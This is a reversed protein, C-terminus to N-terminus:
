SLGRRERWGRRRAHGLSLPSASTRTATRSSSCSTATRSSCASSTPTARCTGGGSARSSPRRPRPASPRRCSPCSCPRTSSTSRPRRSTCSATCSRPRRRPSPRPTPLRLPLLPRRSTRPRNLVCCWSARTASAASFSTRSNPPGGCTRRDRVRPASSRRPSPRAFSVKRRAAHGDRRRARGSVGDLKRRPVFLRSSDTGSRSTSLSGSLPLSRSAGAVVGDEKMVDGYAGDLLDVLAMGSEDGEGDKTPPPLAWRATRVRERAFWM